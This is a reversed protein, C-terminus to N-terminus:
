RPVAIIQLLLWGGNSLQANASVKCGDPRRMPMRLKKFTWPAKVGTPTIGGTASPPFTSSRFGDYSTRSGSGNTCVMAWAVQVEQRPKTYIALAISGPRRARGKARALGYSSQISAHAIVCRSLKKAHASCGVTASSSPAGVAVAAAVLVTAVGGVMVGLIRLGAM